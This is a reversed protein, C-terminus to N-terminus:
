LRSEKLQIRLLEDDDDVDNDGSHMKDTFLLTRLQFICYVFQELLISSEHTGFFSKTFFFMNLGVHSLQSLDSYPFAAGVASKQGIM